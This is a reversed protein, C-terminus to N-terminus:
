KRAEWAQLLMHYYEGPHPVFDAQVATKRHPELKGDQRRRVGDLTTESWKGDALLCLQDVTLLYLGTVEEEQLQYDTLSQDCRYLYMHCFEKDILRCDIFDVEAFIGCPVLDQFRAQLGLEEELERIGDHAGEGALLHGACSIDLLGPFTDKGPHREQVLFEAGAGTQRWVWCHFTQHWLGLRHVESRSATGIPNRHEDFIDFQEEQDSM